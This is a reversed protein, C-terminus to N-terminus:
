FTFLSSLHSSFSSNFLGKNDGKQCHMMFKGPEFTIKTAEKLYTIAFCYRDWIEKKIFFTSRGMSERARCQVKRDRKIKKRAFSMWTFHLLMVKKTQSTRHLYIILVYMAWWRRSTNWSHMQDAHFHIREEEKEYVM